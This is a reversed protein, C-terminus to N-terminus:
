LTIVRRRSQLAQVLGSDFRHFMATANYNGSISVRPLRDLANAHAPFLNGCRTTTATLFGASAAANCERSQISTADGFPYALHHVPRSLRSEMAAKADDLEAALAENGLTRLPVHSAGHAALTCLPEDLLPQMESWRLTLARTAELPDTKQTECLAHFFDLSESPASRRIIRALQDFVRERDQPTHTASEFSSNRWAFSWPGRQNLMSELSYWWLPATAGAFGTTVHIAFPMQFRRLIPLAHTLNDRYGDDFTLVVFRRREPHRLREPVADLPIVDIGRQQITTLLKEFDSTTIELARNVPLFSRESEPIIRHFAYISGLGAYFPRTMLSTLQIAAPKWNM